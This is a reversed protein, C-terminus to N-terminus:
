GRPARRSPRPGGRALALGEGPVDQQVKVSAGSHRQRPTARPKGGGQRRQEATSPLPHQGGTPTSLPTTALWGELVQWARPWLTEAMDRHFFGLHGIRGHPADRAALVELSQPAQRFGDLLAAISRISMMEDDDMALAHVPYRVAACRARVAEGEVGLAYDPHLCWRRWQWLVGAPLDGVLGWRKGPLCGYLTTLLPALGWWWLRVKRRTPAANDRWYGSGSAVALMGAVPLQPQCLGALQAGVSHGLWFLPLQPAQQRAWQAVASCDAAWDMLDAQVARLPGHLSQGHGRYDFTTVIWGRASLWEAFARYYSQGVGMAPALVVQGRVPGHPTWQTLALPGDGGPVPLALAAGDVAPWQM